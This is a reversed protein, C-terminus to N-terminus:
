LVLRVTNEISQGKSARPSMDFYFKEGDATSGDLQCEMEAGEGSSSAMGPTNVDEVGAVCEEGGEVDMLDAEERNENPTGEGGGGTV